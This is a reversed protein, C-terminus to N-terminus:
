KPARKLEDEIVEQIEAFSRGTQLRGNIFVTPTGSVGAKRAEEQDKLIM